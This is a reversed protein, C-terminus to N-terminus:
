HKTRNTNKKIKPLILRKKTQLKSFVSVNADSDILLFPLTTSHVPRSFWRVAIYRPNSDRKRRLFGLGIM